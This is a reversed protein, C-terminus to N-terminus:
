QSNKESHRLPFFVAVIREGIRDDSAGNRHV